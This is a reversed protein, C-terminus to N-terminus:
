WTKMIWIMILKWVLKCSKRRELWSVIKWMEKYKSRYIASEKGEKVDEDLSTGIDEKNYYDDDFLSGMQKDYTYPDFDSELDFGL